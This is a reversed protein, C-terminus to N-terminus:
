IRGGPRRQKMFYWIAVAILAVVIILWWYDAIDRGAAPATDQALASSASLMLGALLSLLTRLM